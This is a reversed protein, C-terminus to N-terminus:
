EMVVKEQEQLADWAAELAAHATDGYAYLFNYDYLCVEHQAASACWRLNYGYPTLLQILHDTSM